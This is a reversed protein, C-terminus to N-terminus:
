SDGSKEPERIAVVHYRKREAGTSFTTTTTVVMDVVYRKPLEVHHADDITGPAFTGRIEPLGDRKLKFRSEGVDAMSLIGEHTEREVSEASTQKITGQLRFFEQPQIFAKRSGVGPVKWGIDVGFGYEVQSVVWGYLANVAGPGLLDVYKQIDAPSSASAMDFVADMTEDLVSEGFLDTDKRFTLLVGVSGTYLLPCDFLSDVVSDWDVRSIQKKGYKLSGFVVSVLRQFHAITGFVGAAMPRNTEKFARYDCIKHGLTQAVEQFQAELKSRFRVVSKLNAAISPLEPHDALERELEMVELNARDIESRINLLMSM